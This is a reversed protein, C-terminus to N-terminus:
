EVDLNKQFLLIYTSLTTPSPGNTQLRSRLDKENASRKAFANRSKGEFSAVPSSQTPAL